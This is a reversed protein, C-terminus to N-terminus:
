NEAITNSALDNLVRRGVCLVTTAFGLRTFALELMLFQHHHLVDATGFSNHQASSCLEGAGHGDPAGVQAPEPTAQTPSCSYMVSPSSYHALSM